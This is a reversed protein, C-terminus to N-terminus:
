SIFTTNYNEDILVVNFQKDFFEGDKTITISVEMEGTEKFAKCVGSISKAVCNELNHLNNDKIACELPASIGNYYIFIKFEYM